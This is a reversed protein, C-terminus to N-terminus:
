AKAKVKAAEVTKAKAKAAEVTKAKAEAVMAAVDDAGITRNNDSQNGIVFFPKGEGDGEQTSIGSLLPLELVDLLEADADIKSSIRINVKINNMFTTIFRGYQGNRISNETGKEKLIFAGSDLWTQLTGVNELNNAASTSPKGHKALIQEINM